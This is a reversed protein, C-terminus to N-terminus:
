LKETAVGDEYLALLTFVSDEDDEGVVLEFIATSADVTNNTVVQPNLVTVNDRNVRAGIDFVGFADRDEWDGVCDFAESSREKIDEKSWIEAFGVAGDALTVQECDTSAHPLYLELNHFDVWWFKANNSLISDDVAFALGDLALIFFAVQILNSIVVNSSAALLHSLDTLKDFKGQSM